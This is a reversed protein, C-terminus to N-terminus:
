TAPIGGPDALNTRVTAIIYGDDTLASVVETMLDGIRSRGPVTIYAVKM